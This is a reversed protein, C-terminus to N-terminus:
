RAGRAGAGTSDYRVEDDVVPKARDHPVGVTVSGTCSAGATDSARFHIEYIRGNGPVKPSGSREARVQAVATGVGDGDVATRGDGATDVPEDQLIATVVVQVADRDPDAVDITIPVMQHNPPWILAVSPTAASCSPARNEGPPVVPPDGVPPDPPPEPDTSDDAPPPPALVTLEVAGIDCRGGQPRGVGRQDVSSCAELADGATLPSGANVAPSDAEPAHTPTPGGNDALPALRPDVPEAANGVQDGATASLGCNTADGILNHGASTLLWPGGCDRTLGGNGAIISNAVSNMGGFWVGGVHRWDAGSSVNATITANRLTVRGSGQHVGAGEARAHNGSVTVNTLEAATGGLAVGGGVHARNAAVTTGVLRVLQGAAALGGGRGEGEVVNGRITTDIVLTGGAELGGGGNGPATVRNEEILTRALTLSTAFMGGGSRVATNAVVRAAAVLGSAGPAGASGFFVAGAQTAGNGEFHSDLVHFPAGPHGTASIAGGTSAARNGTFVSDIITLPMSLGRIAGGSATGADHGEFRCRSVTTPGGAVIAGGGFTQGHGGRLTVGRITLSANQHFVQLLRFEPAGATRELVTREAGAGIITIDSAIVPLANGPVAPTSFGFTGAPVRIIDPGNGRPCAGVAADANAARIADALTCGGSGPPDVQIINRAAISRFSAAVSRVADTQVLCGGNGSCAGIWGTFESDDDADARLLVYGGAPQPADCAEDCTLGDRSTVVGGGDGGFSVRLTGGAADFSGSALVIQRTTRNYFLIHPRDDADFALQPEVSAHGAPLEAVLTRHWVGDVFRALWLASTANDVVYAIAPRGARDVAIAPSRTSATDVDTRTWTAGGDTSRLHVLRGDFTTAGSSAGSAAIHLEGARGEAISVGGNVTSPLVLTLHDPTGNSYYWGLGAHERAYAAIHRGSLALAALATAPKVTVTESRTGLVLPGGIFSVPSRVWIPEGFETSAKIVVQTQANQYHQLSSHYVAPGTLVNMHFVHVWEHADRVTMVHYPTGDDAATTAAGSWTRYCEPLGCLTNDNRVFQWNSGPDRTALMLPGGAPSFPLGCNRELWGAVTRGSPTIRLGTLVISPECSAAAGEYQRLVEFRWAPDRHEGAPLTADAPAAGGHLGPGCLVAAAVVTCMFARHGRSIM